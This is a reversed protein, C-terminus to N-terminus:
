QFVVAGTDSALRFADKWAEYKEIYYDSHEEISKEAWEKFEEEHEEFDEALKASTEPGITGECDSFDILEYFPKGRFKEANNWIHHDPEEDFEVDLVHTLLFEALQQRFQNYGSYSGARFGDMSGSHQYLGELGDARKRHEENNSAYINVIHNRSM